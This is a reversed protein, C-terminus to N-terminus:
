LTQLKGAADFYYIDEHKFGWVGDRQKIHPEYTFYSVSGLATQCNADIYRRREPALEISHGLNALFDLNEFGMDHIMTNGFEFLQCFTTDPTAFGLLASHLKRQTSLGRCFEQIKPAASYTGNEICFSRACDGWVTGLLPSLDVSVLNTEGVPERAAQYQSGSVSLCSRAGLLVLAPVDHYWTDFIGHAALLECARQAISQETSQATITVALQEHVQKAIAQLQQYDSHKARM